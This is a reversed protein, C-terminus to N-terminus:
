DGFFDRQNDSQWTLYASLNRRAVARFEEKMSEPLFQYQGDSEHWRSKIAYPICELHVISAAWERWKEHELKALIEVLQDHSPPM